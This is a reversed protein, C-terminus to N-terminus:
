GSRTMAADIPAALRQQLESGTGGDAEIVLYVGYGDALDL